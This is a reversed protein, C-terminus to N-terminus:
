IIAIAFAAFAMVSFKKFERIKICNKALAKTRTNGISYQIPNLWIFFPVCLCNPGTHLNPGPPSKTEM